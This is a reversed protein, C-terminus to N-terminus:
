LCIEHAIPKCDRGIQGWELGVKVGTNQGNYDRKAALVAQQGEESALFALVSDYFIWTGSLGVYGSWSNANGCALDSYCLKGEHERVTQILTSGPILPTGGMCRLHLSAKLPPKQLSSLGPSPSPLAELVIEMDACTAMAFQTSFPSLVLGFFPPFFKKLRNM